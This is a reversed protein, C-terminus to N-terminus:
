KHFFVDASDVQVEALAAFAESSLQALSTHQRQLPKNHELLGGLPVSSPQMVSAGRVVLQASVRVM